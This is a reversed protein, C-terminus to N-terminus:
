RTRAPHGYRQRAAEGSTGLMAGIAAWSQGDARATAVAEALEREAHARERFAEHVLRLSDSDVIRDPQPEHSEFRDALEDAKELIERLSRPM